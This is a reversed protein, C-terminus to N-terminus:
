RPRKSRELWRDWYPPRGGGIGFHSSLFEIFLKAKATARGPMRVAYIASASAGQPEMEEKFLPVLRKAAIEEGVLWTALHAIGLGSIAGQMLADSDDTRFSGRVALARDKNVGKFRWWGVRSHASRVTLCTHKLLDEPSKPRGFQALYGPSACAVRRQPALRTALLDSSAMTGIRIAVDVREGAVDIMEDSLHLEIEMMPHKKLFSAVAPAVHLRGFTAPATVSLLGRPEANLSSVADKAEAMEALINQARPLFNEGADTLTLRRSSRNFLKTGLEGELWCIKRTVSSVAVSRAQAVKSFNGRAVVALFLELADIM